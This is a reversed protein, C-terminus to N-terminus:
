TYRHETHARKQQALFSSRRWPHSMPPIYIKREPPTKRPEPDFVESHPQHDPLLELRYVKDDVTVFLSGSLTRIVLCETKPKFCALRHNEDYAQYLRNYYRISSGNDFKRPALVALTLDIKEPDPSAEMVSGCSRPDQAFRRNFDPVFIERLYRNAAEPTQIGAVRLENVLRGQFTGNAREVQGKYQSVSSTELAIGLTRCAYGFQTLVDKHEPKEKHSEYNFVTRNDTLFSAPIGYNELIQKLVMYYGHLTEQDEFWAGLIMGTANDVALHLASKRTGFWLHHSADMQIQEGFYKCRPKRPHSDELALEHSVTTEVEQESLQPQQERLKRKARERRTIRREKPSYIEHSTLVRYVCAYSVAIGEVENLKETFHKFNFGQYKAEYLRIIQTDLEQSLSNAPQRNRNKHVFGAKGERQYVQILRDIQRRSLGLKCAARLKNGHHDVLEKIVEYKNQEKMRLRVEKM